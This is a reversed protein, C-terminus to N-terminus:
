QFVWTPRTSAKRRCYMDGLFSSGGTKGPWGVHDEECLPGADGYEEDALGTGADTPLALADVEICSGERM